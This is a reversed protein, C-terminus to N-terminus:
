QKIRRLPKLNKDVGSFHLVRSTSGTIQFRVRITYPADIIQRCKDAWEVVCVGTNLADTLGLGLLEDPKDLRQADIHTLNIKKGQHEQLLVFSPSTIRRSDKIGLGRAIGKTFYTKGAGFIGILAVLDGKELHRGLQAGLAMTAKVNQTSIKLESKTM